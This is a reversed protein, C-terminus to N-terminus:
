VEGRMLYDWEETELFSHIRNTFEALGVKGMTEILERLHATADEKDFQQQVFARDIFPRYENTPNARFGPSCVVYTFDGNLSAHKPIKHLIRNKLSGADDLLLKDGIDVHAAIAWREDDFLQPEADYEISILYPEITRV